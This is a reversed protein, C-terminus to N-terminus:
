RKLFNSTATSGLAIQFRQFFRISQAKWIAGSTTKLKQIHYMQANEQKYADAAIAFLMIMYMAYMFVTILVYHFKEKAICMVAFLSIAFIGVFYLSYHNNLIYGGMIIPICEFVIFLIAIITKIGDISSAEDLISSLATNYEFENSEEDYYVESGKKPKQGHSLLNEKEASM